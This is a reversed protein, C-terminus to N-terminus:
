VVFIVTLLSKRRIKRDYKKKLSKCSYKGVKNVRSDVSIESAGKVVIELDMGTKQLKTLDWSQKLALATFTILGIIIQDRVVTSEATWDPSTCSFKFHKAKKETCSCYAIFTEDKDETLSHFQFRKLTVNETSRYHEQMKANFLDWTATKRTAELPEAM